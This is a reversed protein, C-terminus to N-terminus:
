EDEEIIFFDLHDKEKIDQFNDRILNVFGNDIKDFEYYDVSFNYEDDVICEYRVGDGQIGNEELRKAWDFLTLNHEKNYRKFAEVGYGMEGSVVLVITKSM